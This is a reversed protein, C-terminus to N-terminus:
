PSWQVILNRNPPLALRTHPVGNLTLLSTTSAPLGDVTARVRGAILFATTTGATLVRLRRPAEHVIVTSRVALVHRLWAGASLVAIGRARAHAVLAQQWAGETDFWWSPHHNVTIPHPPDSASRDLLEKSRAILTERTHHEYGFRAPMLVHDDLQTGQQFIGVLSGDERIFRLPFGSGNMFGLEGEGKFALAMFDLNLELGVRAESEALATYGWWVLHHNRAVKPWRGYKAYFRRCHERLVAGYRAPAQALLNPHVGFDIGRDSLHEVTEQALQVIQEQGFDVDAVGGVETDTLLFTIPVQSSEGQAVIGPDPVYDQDATLVLVSRSEPPLMHLRYPLELSSLIAEVWLDAHPRAYDQPTMSGVFLDSPQVGGQGNVDRNAQAPNGQRLRRVVDSFDALLRICRGTGLQSEQLVVRGSQTGLLVRSPSCTPCEEPEALQAVVHVPERVLPGHVRGNVWDATVKTGSACVDSGPGSELLIGGRSVHSRLAHRVGESHTESTLVVRTDPTILKAIAETSAPILIAPVGYGVLVELLAVGREGSDIVAIMPPGFVPQLREVHSLNSVRVRSVSSPKPLWLAQSQGREAAAVAREDLTLRASTAGDGRAVVALVPLPERLDFEVFSAPDDAHTTFGQPSPAAAGGELLRAPSHGVVASSASARIPPLENEGAYQLRWYAAMGGVVTVGLLAIGFRRVSTKM